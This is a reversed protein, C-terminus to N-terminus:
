NGKIVQYMIDDFVHRWQDDASRESMLDKRSAFMAPVQVLTVDCGIPYADKLTV